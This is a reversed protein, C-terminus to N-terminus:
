TPVLTGMSLFAKMTSSRLRMTPRLRLSPHPQEEKMSPIEEIQGWGTQEQKRRVREM